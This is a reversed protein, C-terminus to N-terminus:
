MEEEFVFRNKKHILGVLSFSNAVLFVVVVIIVVYKFLNITETNVTETIVGDDIWRLFSNHLKTIEMFFIYVIGMYTFFNIILVYIDYIYVNYKSLYHNIFRSNVTMNISFLVLVCLGILYGSLILFSRRLSVKFEAATYSDRYPFVSLNVKTFKSILWVVLVILLFVFLTLCVTSICIGFLSYEKKVHGNSMGSDRVRSPTFDYKTDNNVNLAGLSDDGMRRAKNIDDTNYGEVKTVNSKEVSIMAM